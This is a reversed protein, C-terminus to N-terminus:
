RAGEIPAPAPVVITAVVGSPRHARLELTATKGHLMALRARLNALGTGTGFGPQLGQGDDIVDITVRGRDVRALISVSGGDPLPALAHKVANEALTTIAMPPVRATAAGPAVDIEVRLRAGMRVRQLDLYAVALAVDDVLPVADRRLAHAADVVYRQLNRLTTAGARADTAYLRRVHALTNFLFHPEVQSRLLGLQAEQVQQELTARREQERELSRRATADREGILYVAVGAWAIAVSAWPAGWVALPQEHMMAVLTAPEHLSAYGIATGVLAAAALAVVRTAHPRRVVRAVLLVAAFAVLLIRVADGTRIVPVSNGEYQLAPTYLGLHLVYAAICAVFALAIRGHPRGRAFRGSWEEARM